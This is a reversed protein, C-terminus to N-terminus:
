NYGDQKEKAYPNEGVSKQDQTKVARDVWISETLPNYRAHFPKKLKECFERMKVKADSLSEAVFYTPQYTTIPYATNAAVNPDWPLLKPREVKEEGPKDEYFNCNELLDGSVDKTRKIIENNKAANKEPQYINHGCSYMLEGFSSLIGAGYAKTETKNDKDRLLGFEVSHWYCTALKKIEEDSAGLSALGIEQSFDAFDKDAFMPAHGLLEHCIDPEPTYLPVSSHRIYQTSFFVRFALGNLFDRSSLLGAVPRLTFGTQSKLFNSIDRAQPINDPSLNIKKEMLKLINIYESCAYKSHLNVLNNYVIGWTKKEEETYEILPIEDGYRLNLALDALETRRKRYVEDHFGPHDSQLDSGADLTRPAIRDLESIHRPFWPVEKENLIFHNKSLKKLQTILLDTNKDGIEGDFDIYMHFSNEDSLQSPRSEIRTLNIDYKWFYKLLEHLSGPSDSIEILLSVRPSHWKNNSNSSALIQKNTSFHRFSSVPTARAKSLISPKNLSPKNLLPSSLKFGNCFNLLCILLLLFVFKM